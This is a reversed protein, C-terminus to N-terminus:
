RGALEMLARGEDSNLDIPKHKKSRRGDVYDDPRHYRRANRAKVKEPNAAAWTQYAARVCQKCVPNLGSPRNRDRSFESDPKSCSCKICQRLLTM